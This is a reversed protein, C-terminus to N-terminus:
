KIMENLYPELIHLLKERAKSVRIKANTLSTDAIEAIEKYLLGDFERMIFADKFKDDLLDLARMIIDFMENKEYANPESLINEVIELSVTPKKDRMYNLCLNRATKMLYSPVNTEDYDPDITHYFKIFTEQFIDEAQAKDNIMSVCYAHVKPAYRKYIETFAPESEPKSHRMMTVLAKDSYTTYNKSM